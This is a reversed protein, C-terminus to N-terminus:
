KLGFHLLVQKSVKDIAKKYGLEFDGVIEPDYGEALHCGQIRTICELVVNKVLAHIDKDLLCFDWGSESLNSRHEIGTKFIIQEILQENM